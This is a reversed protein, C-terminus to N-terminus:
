NLIIKSFSQRAGNFACGMHELPYEIFLLSTAAWQDSIFSAKTDLIFSYVVVFKSKTFLNSLPHIFPHFLSLHASQMHSPSNITNSPHAPLPHIALHSLPTFPHYLLHFPNSLSTERNRTIQFYM